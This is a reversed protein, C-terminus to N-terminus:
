CVRELRTKQKESSTEKTNKLLHFAQFIPLHKQNLHFYKQGFFFKRNSKKIKGDTKGGNCSMQNLCTALRVFNVFLYM